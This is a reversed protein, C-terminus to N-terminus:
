ITSVRFNMWETKGFFFGVKPLSQTLTGALAKARERHDKENEPFAAAEPSLNSFFL